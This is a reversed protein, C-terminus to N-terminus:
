CLFNCCSLKMAISVRRKDRAEVPNQAWFSYCYFVPEKGNLKAIFDVSRLNNLAVAETFTLKFQTLEVKGAKVFASITGTILIIFHFFISSRM